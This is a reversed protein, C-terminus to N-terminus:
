EPSLARVPAGQDLDSGLERQDGYAKVGNREVDRLILSGDRTWLLKERGAPSMSALARKDRARAAAPDM